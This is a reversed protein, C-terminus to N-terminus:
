VSGELGLEGSIREVARALQKRLADPNGGLRAAIQRLLILAVNLLVSAGVVGLAPLLDLRSAVLVQAADQHVGLLRDHEEERDAPVHPPEELLLM